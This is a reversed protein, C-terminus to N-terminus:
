TATMARLEAPWQRDLTATGDILASGAREILALALRRAHFLDNQLLPLLHESALEPAIHLPRLWALLAALGPSPWLLVRALHSLAEQVSQPEAQVICITPGRSRALTRQASELGTHLQLKVCGPADLGPPLLSLGSQAAIQCLLASLAAAADHDPAPLIVPLRVDLALDLASECFPRFTAVDPLPALAARLLANCAQAGGLARAVVEALPISRLATTPRRGALRAHLLPLMAACEAETGKAPPALLLLAGDHQTLQAPDLEGPAWHQCALRWAAMAVAPYRAHPQRAHQLRPGTPATEIWLPRPGQPVVGCLLPFVAAAQVRLDLPQDDQLLRLMGGRQRLLTAGDRVRFRAGPASVFSPFSVPAAIPM